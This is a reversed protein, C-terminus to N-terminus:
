SAAHAGRGRRRADRHVLPLRGRGLLAARHSARPGAGRTARPLRAVLEAEPEHLVFRVVRDLRALRARLAPDAALADRLRRGLQEDVAAADPFRPAAREARLAALVDAASRVPPLAHLRELRVDAFADGRAADRALCRRTTARRGGAGWHGRRRRAGLRAARPAAALGRGRPRAGAAGPDDALRPNVALVSGGVPAWIGFAGGAGTVTAAHDGAELAAGPEPLALRRSAAGLAAGLARTLGVVVSGLATEVWLHADLAIGRAGHRLRGPRRGAPRRRARAVPAAGALGAGM